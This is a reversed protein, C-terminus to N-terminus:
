RRLTKQRSNELANQSDADIKNLVITLEATRPLADWKQETPNPPGASGAYDKGAVPEPLKRDCSRVAESGSPAVSEDCLLLFKHSPHV